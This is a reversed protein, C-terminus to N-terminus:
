APRTLTRRYATSRADVEFGLRQYLGLAGTPNDADVGLMAQTMGADRLRRLSEATMARALGRRRWPARVSIHELWGRRVGMEANEAAWIFNQVVGAVQEGDWAVVWLAPDFEERGYTLAFDQDTKERAGWHDLFAEVEADFVRRHDEPRLPRLEIGDPLEADPIPQTLDRRMLFFWRVAEFGEAALIAHHGLETEHVFSALATEQDPPESAAREGARRINHRLLARGLGRRRFDPLIQGSVQYVVVGARVVRDVEADAVLRGDVEAVVMDLAVDLGPALELEDRVQRPTPRWPVDDHESTAGYLRALAAYDADDSRLRRFTLGPIELAGDIRLVQTEDTSRDRTTTM